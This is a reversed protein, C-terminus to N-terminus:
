KILAMKKISTFSKKNDLSRAEIRYYYIGNELHSGNFKISYNGMESIGNFLEAVIQGLINYVTLKLYSDEPISYQISTYPNSPNPYNQALHYRSPKVFNVKLSPSYSYSGNIDIQKLRYFYKGSNRIDKDCFLYDIYSNHNSYGSIFGITEWNFDVSQEAPLSREIEYKKNDLESETRWNLFIEDGEIKATFITLETPFSNDASNSSIIFQGFSVLDNATIYGIGDKDDGQNNITIDPVLTWSDGTHNRTFLTLASEDNILALNNYYFDVDAIFGNDNDNHIDWYVPPYNKQLGDIRNPYDNIQLVNVIANSGPM